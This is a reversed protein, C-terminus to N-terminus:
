GGDVGLDEWHDRVRRNGWWPGRCGGGKTRVWVRWM